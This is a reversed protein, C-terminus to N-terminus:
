CGNRKFNLTSSILVPRIWESGREAEREERQKRLINAVLGQGGDMLVVSPNRCQGGTTM